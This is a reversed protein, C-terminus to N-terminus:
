KAYDEVLVSWSHQANGAHNEGFKSILKPILHCHKM